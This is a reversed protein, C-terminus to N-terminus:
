WLWRLVNGLLFAARALSNFTSLAVTKWWEAQAGVKEARRGEALGILRLRSPPVPERQLGVFRRRQECERTDVPLPFPRDLLRPRVDVDLDEREHRREGVRERARDIVLAARRKQCAFRVVVGPQGARGIFCEARM